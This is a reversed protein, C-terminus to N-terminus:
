MNSIVRPSVHPGLYSQPLETDSRVLVLRELVTNASMHYLRISNIGKHLDVPITVYRVNHIQEKTYQEGMYFQEHPNAVANHVEIAGGNVQTGLCLTQRKDVPMTPALVWTLHWQGDSEVLCRYELWPSQATDNGTDHQATTPVVRMSTGTLGYQHIVQWHSGDAGQGCDSAGDAEIAIAGDVSSYVGTHRYAEYEPFGDGEGVITHQQNQQRNDMVRPDNHVPIHIHVIADRSDEMHPFIYGRSRQYMTGVIDVDLVDGDHVQSRDVDITVTQHSVTTGQYKNLTIAPHHGTIRWDTPQKAGCYVTFTSSAVRPDLFDTLTLDQNLWRSGVSYQDSDGAVVIMRPLNAPEIYRRQPYRNDDACWATFGFHESLGLGDFKGGAIHHYTDVIERDTEICTSMQDAIANAEVANIDALWHNRGALIWLKMLNATGCAPYWVLSIFATLKYEPCRNRLEYCQELVWQATDLLDQAEGYHTPHYTDAQMVEHKRRELMTINKRLVSEILAVDHEDFADAFQQHVWSHLFESADNARYSTQEDITDALYLFYSLALENTAIDGVNTVWIERIGWDWATTMQDWVRALVTSGIWEYSAPGGHMDMHYYMGFGGRRNRYREDPLMRTYGMNNDALMVTVGDLEPDDMLSSETDDHPFFFGEVENFLVIQRPVQSLDQNVEERMLQNQTHLVDKILAINDAKSASDMIPTDREGRMGMTIVNEFPANRRLGDRWFNTIGERNSIFDWADGYPSDPGRMLSYEEGTRMCPEHHSTSLVVGLEDALQATAIGPGDLSINDIWMAPWIYNGKLRLLLEFVQEYCQANAGGFNIRSWNGFAPWEDNIFFGRYRVSPQKSTITAQESTLKVTNRCQPEVGNYKRLPSVGLLRSLHMLGYITGRKDCGLILVAPGATFECSDTIRIVYQERGSRISDVANSNGDIDAICTALQHALNEHDLTTFVVAASAHQGTNMFSQLDMVPHAGGVVAQIDDAIWTAVRVVGPYANADHVLTTTTDIYISTM